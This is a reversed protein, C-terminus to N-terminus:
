NGLDPRGDGGGLLIERKGVPSAPGVLGEQEMREMLDAARNYGIALRRQLFSTSAEARARGPSPAISCSTPSPRRIM